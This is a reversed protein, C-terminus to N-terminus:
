NVKGMQVSKSPNRHTDTHGVSGMAAAQKQMHHPSHHWYTKRITDPSTSFYESADEISGGSRIFLTIATHKIGHPTIRRVGAKECATTLAKEIDGIPRGPYRTHEVVYDWDFLRDWRKLHAMLRAPIRHPKRDKRTRQEDDGRRWWIEQDFDLWPGDKRKARTTNSVTRPRSGTYFQCLALRAAHKTRKQRWLHWLVAAFEDRTLWDPRPETEAPLWVDPVKTLRSRSYNLAARM